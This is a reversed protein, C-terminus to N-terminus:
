LEKAFCIAEDLTDYPPYNDIQHYGRGTYLRVADSQIERTQLITRKYGMTKAKEELATMMQAAIHHRRYEPEVWVRKIEADTDSYKKLGSCGVAENGLFVLLVNDVASSVNYPIFQKRKEEGGVLRNYYQETVFYFHKFTEDNGNTWIFQLDM